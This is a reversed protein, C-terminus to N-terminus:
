FIRFAGIAALQRLALGQEVLAEARAQALRPLLELLDGDGGDFAMADAAARREGHREIEAETALGRM